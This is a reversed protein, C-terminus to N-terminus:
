DDILNGAAEDGSLSNLDSGPSEMAEDVGEEYESGSDVDLVPHDPPYQQVDEIYADPMDTDDQSAM